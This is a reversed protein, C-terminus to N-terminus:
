KKTVYGFLRYDNREDKYVDWEELLNDCFAKGLFEPAHLDSDIKEYLAQALYIRPPQNLTDCIRDMLALRDKTMRIPYKISIQGYELDIRESKYPNSQVETVLDEPKKKTKVRKTM